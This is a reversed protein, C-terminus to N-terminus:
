RGAAGARGAVQEALLARAAELQEDPEGPEAEVLVDPQVGQGQIAEGSPTLWRAITLRLSSRDSLDHVNQVTGKGHTPEGVLRARGSDRLAAAVVEAASASGRNVLVVVPRDTWLGGRRAEHRKRAGDSREEEVVAGSALFQSTVDVAAHLYGGPNNRLDLVVGAVDAAVFSRLAEAVEAATDTGFRSVRLYALDDDLRRAEVSAVRIAAREITFLLPEPAGPRVVRLTVTTGRPGRIAASGALLDVGDLAWGDVHTIVDGPRLGARAAPSGPIPAVVVLRGDQLDLQVGIGDYAGRLAADAAERRTPDLYVTHPDGLAEVLGQVAGRALRQPDLRARDVYEREIWDWAELVLRLRAREDDRLPALAQSPLLAALPTARLADGLRGGGAAADWQGAGYGALFLAAAVLGAVLLRPV